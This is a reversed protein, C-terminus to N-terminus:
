SNLLLSPKGFMSDTLLITQCRRAAVLCSLVISGIVRHLAKLPKIHCTGPGLLLPMTNSSVQFSTYERAYRQRQPRNAPGQYACPLFCIPDKLSSDIGHNIDCM